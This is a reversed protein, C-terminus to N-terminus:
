EEAALNKSARKRKAPSKVPKFTEIAAVEALQKEFEELSEKMAADLKGKHNAFRRLTFLCFQLLSDTPMVVTAVSRVNTSVDDEEESSYDPEVSAFVIKTNSVGFLVGRM